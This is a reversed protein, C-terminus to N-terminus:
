GGLKLGVRAEKHVFVHGDQDREDMRILSCEANM